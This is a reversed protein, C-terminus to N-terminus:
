IDVALPVGAEKLKVIVDEAAQVARDLAGVLEDLRTRVGGQVSAKLKHLREGRDRFGRVHRELGERDRKKLLPPVHQVGGGGVESEGEGVPRSPDVTSPRGLPVLEGMDSTVGAARRKRAEAMAAGSPAVNWFRALLANMALAIQRADRLAPTEVPIDAQHKDLEQTRLLVEALKKAGAQKGMKALVTMMKNHNGYNQTSSEHNGDRNEHEEDKLSGGGVIHHNSSLAANLEGIVKSVHTMELPQIKHWQVRRVDRLSVTSIMNTMVVTGPAQSLGRGDSVSGGGGGEAGHPIGVGGGGGMEEGVPLAYLRRPDHLQLPEFSVNTGQDGPTELDVLPRKKGRRISGTAESGERIAPDQPPVIEIEEGSGVTGARAPVAVGVAPERPVDLARALDVLNEPEEEEEEKDRRSGEDGALTSRKGRAVETRLESMGRTNCAEVASGRGGIDYPRDVKAVGYGVNLRDYHDAAVNLDGPIRKVEQPVNKRREFEWSRQCSYMRQLFVDSSLHGLLIEDESTGSRSRRSLAERQLQQLREFTRFFDETSQSGSGVLESFAKRIWPFSKILMRQREKRVQAEEEQVTATARRRREQAAMMKTAEMAAHVRAELESSAWFERETMAGGHVLDHHAAALGPDAQLLAARAQQEHTLALPTRAV